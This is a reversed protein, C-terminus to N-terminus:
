RLGKSKLMPIPDTFLKDFMLQGAPLGAALGILQTIYPIPVGEAGKRKSGKSKQTTDLNLQCMPCAVAVCDAGAQKAQSLIRESLKVVIDARAFLQSGGCCETKFGWEVKQAGLATIIDDMMRPNEVDDFQTVAKPRSLLCGYYSAVKLNKLPKEIKIKGINDMLVQLIHVVRYNPNKPIEQGIVGSIVGRTKEDLLEHAALKLRSFCLACTAVVPLDQKAAKQLERAPLATALIEDSSHASSAGCCTWDKLEELQVGLKQCVLRTTADHEKASTLSTCGPYYAYRMMDM